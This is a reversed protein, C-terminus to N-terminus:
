KKDNSLYLCLRFGLVIIYMTGYLWLMVSIFASVGGYVNNYNVFTNSYMSFIVTYIYIVMSSVLASFGRFKKKFKTKGRDAYAKWDPLFSYLLFLIVFLMAVVFFVRVLSILYTYDFYLYNNKIIAYQIKKGFVGIVFLVAIVVSFMLSYVLSRLRLLFYNRKEKIRLVSHFGETLAYFGKGSSWAALLTTFSVVSTSSFLFNNLLKKVISHSSNPIIGFLIDYFNNMGNKTIKLVSLVLFILPIFSLMFFFSSQAAFAGIHENRINTLITKSKSYVYKIKKM